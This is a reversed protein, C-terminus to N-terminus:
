HKVFHFDVPDGDELVIGGRYFGTELGTIDLDLHLGDGGLTGRRHMVQRGLADLVILDFTGPRISPAQIRIRESSPNPFVRVATTGASASEIGTSFDAVKYQIRAVADQANNLECIAIVEKSQDNLFHLAVLTDNGFLDAMGWDDIANTTVDLWLGFSLKAELTRATYRTRKMRLVPYSGGPLTLSGWADVVDLLNVTSRFRMTDPLIPIQDVTGPPLESPLFRVELDSSNQWIDFFQVPARCIPIPPSWHTTWSSGLELPDAGHSGLLEVATATVNLYDEQSADAGAPTYMLDAVPFDASGVGTVPHRYIEQWSSDAQLMSLDWFLNGGPPTYVTAVADPQNGFAYFLTDGVVPFVSNTVTIQSSAPITFILLAIWTHHHRKMHLLSVSFFLVRSHSPDMVRSVEVQARTINEEPDGYCYQANLRIRSGSCYM